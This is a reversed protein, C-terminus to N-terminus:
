LELKNLIALFEDANKYGIIKEPNEKGSGDFFIIGPPGFLHFRQLLALDAASNETVDAQLLVIDQLRQGVRPDSFTNREYEKCAVCWDAYFDLMVPKGKAAQIRNDLEQLNKVRTFPLSSVHAPPNTSRLGALPQLPSESGALAGTLLAIGAVLLMVGVGKWFRHWPGALAPLSDLAHLYVAPIILLAAWLALVLSAPLVPSILWVAVALMVVGFFNHVADMWPGAKPLLTGASAGILLLPVGMGMALAFLAMGGLVVNHTQSIYLLAGALPAAVCPSVILASLAGMTFVGILRGGKFRNSASAVRNEFQGPLRLEYFGFMSLALLVFVLAAAALVWANQLAVSLLQGSLGAAIGIMTYTLAMGLTYAFSLNFSHLRGQQKSGVIISSLIPIMPLVCPTLSLLLGFGFFSVVILWLEGNKLLSTAQAGSGSNVASVSARAGPNSLDVTLTKHIPAYCLGKESCGQYTAAVSVRDGSVGVLKLVAQLDHHYVETAGFNPDQKIEGEPLEVKAISAGAPKELAFKIRDRYLYHGPAVIFSAELTQQDRATINLKFAQDPPLFKDADRDELFSSKAGNDNASYFAASAPFIWLL